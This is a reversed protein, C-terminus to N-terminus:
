AAFAFPMDLALAPAPHHPQHTQASPPRFKPTLPIGEIKLMLKEEEQPSFADPYLSRSSAKRGGGYISIQKAAYHLNLHLLVAPANVRPCTKEEGARSFGLMRKYFVAHRPNVEVFLDTARHVRHAYIYALHFLPALVKESKSDSAVALKTLECVRAGAQRYQAIEKKYLREAQLNAPSDLGVSITGVTREHNVAELTIQNHLAPLTATPAESKYGRWAYMRELLSTVRTRNEALRIRYSPREILVQADINGDSVYNMIKGQFFRLENQILLAAEAM